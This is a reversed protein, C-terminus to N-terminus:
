EDEKAEPTQEPTPQVWKSGDWVSQQANYTQNAHMIRRSKEAPTSCAMIAVLAIMCVLLIIFRQKATM